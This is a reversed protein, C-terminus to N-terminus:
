VNGRHTRLPRFWATRRRGHRSMSNSHCVYKVTYGGEPYLWDEKTRGRDKICIKVPAQEDTQAQWLMLIGPSTKTWQLKGPAWSIARVDQHNGRGTTPTPIMGRLFDLPIESKERIVIDGMMNMMLIRDPWTVARTVQHCETEHHGALLQRLHFSVTGPFNKRRQTNQRHRRSGYSTQSEPTPRDWFCNHTAPLPPWPWSLQMQFILHGLPHITKHLRHKGSDKFRPNLRVICILIKLLNRHLMRRDALM